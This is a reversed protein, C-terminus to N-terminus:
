VDGRASLGQEDKAREGALQIAEAMSMDDNDRHNYVINTLRKLNVGYLDAWERLTHVESGMKYLKGQRRHAFIARALAKRRECDGPCRGRRCSMCLKILEPPEWNDSVPRPM